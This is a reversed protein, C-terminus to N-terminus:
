ALQDPAHKPTPLKESAELECFLLTGGVVCIPMSLLNLVPIWLFLMTAAGLGEVLALNERLLSIKQKFGMRRRSLPIDMVERAFFFWSAGTSLAFYAIEGAVPILNLLLLPCFTAVYLVLALLSHRISLSADGLLTQWTPQERDPVGLLTAEVRESMAEYFPSAVIGGVVWALFGLVTFVALHILISVIVYLGTTFSHFMGTGFPQPMFTELLMPAWRWTLGFAGVMFSATILIPIAVFKWLDPRKAVFRLARFPFKFGHWFTSLFAPLQM